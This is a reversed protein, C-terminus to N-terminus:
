RGLAEIGTERPHTADRFLSIDQYCAIRDCCIEPPKRSMEVVLLVNRFEKSRLHKQFSKEDAWYEQLMFVRGRLADRYLRCCLCGEELTIREAQATLIDKAEKHKAHPIMVRICLHVRECPSSQENEPPM